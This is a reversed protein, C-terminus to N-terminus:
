FHYAPIRWISENEFQRFSLYGTRHPFNLFIPILNRPYKRLGIFIHQLTRNGIYVWITKEEMENISNSLENEHFHVGAQKM